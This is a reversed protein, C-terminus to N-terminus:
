EPMKKFVASELEFQGLKIEALTVNVNKEDVKSKWNRQLIIREKGTKFGAKSHQLFSISTMSEQGQPDSCKLRQQPTGYM